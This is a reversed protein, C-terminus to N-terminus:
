WVHQAPGNSSVIYCQPLSLPTPTLMQIEYLGSVTELMGRSTTVLTATTLGNPLGCGRARGPQHPNTFSLDLVAPM